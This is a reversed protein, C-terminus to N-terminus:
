QKARRRLSRGRDPEADVASEDPDPTETPIPAVQQMLWEVQARLDDDTPPLTDKEIPRPPGYKKTRGSDVVSTINLQAVPGRGANFRSVPSTEPGHVLPTPMSPPAFEITGEGLRRAVLTTTGKKYWSTIEVPKTPNGRRDVGLSQKTRECITGVLPDKPARQERALRDALREAMTPAMATATM